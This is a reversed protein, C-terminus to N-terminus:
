CFLRVTMLWLMKLLKM